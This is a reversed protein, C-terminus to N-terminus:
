HGEYAQGLTRPQRERGAFITMAVIALLYPASILLEPTLTVGIAPLALRAADAAGFVLAGAILGGFRWGGLVVAAVAIIGRGASMNYTFQGILGVSLYAGALGATMGSLIVAQRRIRNVNVGNAEAAAPDDGVARVKLGWMSRYLLWACVPLLLYVLFFPARQVFLANGVVPLSSLVPIEVVGFRSPDLRVSAILFSTGGLVALNVALGVVFQNLDLRHSLNAQLAALLVGALMGAGLGMVPGWSSAVVAASFAGALLMGEVSINIAGARQSVLEGCGAIMLLVALRATSDLLLEIEGM